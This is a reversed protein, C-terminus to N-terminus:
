FSRLLVTKAKFIEEREASETKINGDEKWKIRMEYRKNRKM